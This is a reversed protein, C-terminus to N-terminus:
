RPRKCIFGNLKLSCEADNWSRPRGTRFVQTCHERGYWNDPQKHDWRTYDVPSGDTWSWARSGPYHAQM